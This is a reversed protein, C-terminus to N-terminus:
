ATSQETVGESTGSRKRFARYQYLVLHVRACTSCQNEVDEKLEARFKEIANPEGGAARSSGRVGCVVGLPTGPRSPRFLLGGALMIRPLDSLRM